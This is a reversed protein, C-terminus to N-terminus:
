TQHKIEKLRRPQTSSRSKESHIQNKFSSETEVSIEFSAPEAYSEVILQHCHDNALLASCLVILRLVSHWNMADIKDPAIIKIVDSDSIGVFPHNTTRSFSAVDFISAMVITCILILTAFETMMGAAYKIEM